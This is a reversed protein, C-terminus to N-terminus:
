NECETKFFLGKEARATAVVTNGKLAIYVVDKGDQVRDGTLGKISIGCAAGVVKLSDRQGQVTSGTVSDLGSVASGGEAFANTTFAFLSAIIIKKM